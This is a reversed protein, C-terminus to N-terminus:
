VKALENKLHTIVEVPFPDCGNLEALYYSVWDFLRILWVSQEILSDGSAKVDAVSYANKTFISKSIEMRVRVRPHDSDTKIILVSSKKLIEEPLQWGVLENHNMEPLVNIHCLQKANENIQQQARLLVAGFKSDAYLIPLKEHFHSAIDKAKTRIQEDESEIRDIGKELAVEFADSILGFAKLVFLLATFSYGVSARPCDTGGPLRVLGLGQQEAEKAIRGGSTICVVQANKELAKELCTLTEETNGSYSSAIFLTDAGTFSPIDYTKTVTLPVKLENFVFSNVLDGGIGSGGLGAVVINRIDHTGTELKLERGSALAQRLQDPFHEILPRMLDNMM